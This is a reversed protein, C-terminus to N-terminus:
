KVKMEKLSKWQNTKTDLAAWFEWGNTSASTGSKGVTGKAAVAASSPSDYKTGKFEIGTSTVTASYTKGLYLARLQLGVPLFEGRASRWLQQGGGQGNSGESKADSSLESPNWENFLKLLNAVVEGSSVGSLKAIKQIEFFTTGDVGIQFNVM